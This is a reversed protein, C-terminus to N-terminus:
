RLVFIGINDIEEKLTYNSNIFDLVKQPKYAALGVQEYEKFLILKPKTARLNEVEKEQVGPLDQYWPLQPVWPDTAPLTGTLPYINDWWNLVFIKENEHTNNRVYSVVDVVDAELFRTGERWNRM